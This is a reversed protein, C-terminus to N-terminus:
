SSAMTLGAESLLKKFSDLHHLHRLWPARNLFIVLPDRHVLTAERLWDVAEEHAGVGIAALALQSGPVFPVDSILSGGLRRAGNTGWRLAQLAQYYKVATPRNGKRGHLLGMLGFALIQQRRDLEDKAEYLFALYLRPLYHNDECAAELIDQARTLEGAMLLRAGFDAWVVPVRYEGAKFAAELIKVADDVRHQTLLFATYMAHRSVAEPDLDLAQQWSKKAEDWKHELCMKVFADAMFVEWVAKRHDQITAERALDAAIELESPPYCGYMARRCYSEAKLALLRPHKPHDGLLRDYEAIARDFGEITRSDTVSRAKIIGDELADSRELYAHYTVSPIYNGAQYAAKKEFSVLYPDRKGDATAYYKALQKRVRHMAVKVSDPVADSKPFASQITSLKAASLLEPLEQRQQDSSAREVATLVHRLLVLSQTTFGQACALRSLFSETRNTM